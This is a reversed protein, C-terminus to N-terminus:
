RRRYWWWSSRELRSELESSFEASKRCEWSKEGAVKEVVVIVGEGFVVVVVVVVVGLRRTRQVVGENEGREKVEGDDEELM